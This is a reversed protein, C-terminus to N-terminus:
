EELGETGRCSRRSRHRLRDLGASFREERDAGLDDAAAPLGPKPVPKFHERVYEEVRTRDARESFLLFVTLLAAVAIMIAMRLDLCQERSFRIVMGVLCTLWLTRLIQTRLSHRTRPDYLAPFALACGVWGVAVLGLVGTVVLFLWWPGSYEPYEDVHAVTAAGCVVLVILAPIAARRMFYLFRALPPADKTVKLRARFIDV